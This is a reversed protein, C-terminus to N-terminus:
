VDEAVFPAREDRAEIERVVEEVLKRDDIDWPRFGPQFWALYATAMSTLVGDHGFFYRIARAWTAYRPLNDQVFLDDM